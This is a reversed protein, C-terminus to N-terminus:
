IGGLLTQLYLIRKERVLVKEDNETKSKALNELVLNEASIKKEIFENALAGATLIWPPVEYEIDDPGKDEMEWSVPSGIGVPAATIVQCIFKGERALGENVIQFGNRMLWWRLRGQGKRPQMIVKHFSKSKELDEGLIETMLIGGMGAIVIVDVESSKLVRLGSGLRLDFTEDPYLQKGNAYAKDLSGESVDALIVKPSIRREWLYIPLFGHDTGIDAMTENQEIQDAMLQLRETLKIM